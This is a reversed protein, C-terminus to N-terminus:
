LPKLDSFVDMYGYLAVAGGTHLFVVNEGKKFRGKRCLDILRSLEAYEVLAIRGM